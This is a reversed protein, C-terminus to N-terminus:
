AEARAYPGARTSKSKKWSISYTCSPDVIAVLGGSALALDPGPAPPFLFRLKGTNNQAQTALNHHATPPPANTVYFKSTGHKSDANLGPPVYPRKPANKRPIRRALALATARM